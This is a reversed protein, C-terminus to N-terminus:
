QIVNELFRTIAAASVGNQITPPNVGSPAAAALQQRYAELAASERAQFAQFELVANRRLLAEEALLQAQMQDPLLRSQASPLMRLFSEQSVIADRSAGLGATATGTSVSQSNLMAITSRALTLESELQRVRGTLTDVTSQLRQNKDALDAVQQELTELLMKKRKRRARASERNMALRKERRLLSKDEDDDLGKVNADGESSETGPDEDEDEAQRKKPPRKTAKAEMSLPAKSDKMEDEPGM